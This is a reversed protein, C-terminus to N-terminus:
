PEEDDQFKADISMSTAPEYAGLETEAETLDECMRDIAGYQEAFGKRFNEYATRSAWRDITVYHRAAAVDRLLETELYGHGRRFFEAWVGDPGYAEEFENERGPKVEFRWIVAFM